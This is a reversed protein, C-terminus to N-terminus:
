RDYGAPRPAGILADGTNDGTADGGCVSSGTLSNAQAGFVSTTGPVDGAVAHAPVKAFGSGGPIRYTIGRREEKIGQRRFALALQLLFIEEFALTRHATTTRDELADPSADDPPFHVARLADLRRELGNRRAVPAPVVETLSRPDIASLTRDM